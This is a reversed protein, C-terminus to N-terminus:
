LPITCSVFNKRTFALSIMNEMDRDGLLSIEINKRQYKQYIEFEVDPLQLPLNLLESLANLEIDTELRGKDNIKIKSYLKYKKIIDYFEEITHRSIVEYLCDLELVDCLYYKQINHFDKNYFGKFATDVALLLMKAEETLNSIDINYYSIIQLVTSGAYKATYNDNSIHFVSNLNANRQSNTIHNGWNKGKVFDVDVGIINKIVCSNKIKYLNKFDYFYKINYGKIQHLLECSILSDIDDSMVLDYENWWDNVWKPFKEKVEKKM